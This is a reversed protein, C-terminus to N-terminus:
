ASPRRSPRMIKGIAKVLWHSRETPKQPALLNAGRDARESRPRQLATASFPRATGHGSDLRSKSRHQLAGTGSHYYTEDRHGGIQLPVKDLHGAQETGTM